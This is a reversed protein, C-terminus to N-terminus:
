RGVGPSSGGDTRGRPGAQGSTGPGPRADRVMARLSTRITTRVSRSSPPTAIIRREEDSEAAVFRAVSVSGVFGVLALVVLISVLDTRGAWAAYLAFAALFTSVLVDLAVVRDLVSPGIEVRWIVLAAAATLMVASVIVVVRM